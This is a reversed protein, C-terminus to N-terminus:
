GLNRLRGANIDTRCIAAIFFNFKKRSTLARDTMYNTGCILPGNVNVNRWKQMDGIKGGDRGNLWASNVL